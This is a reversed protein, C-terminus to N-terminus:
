TCVSGPPTSVYSGCEVVCGVLEPPLCGWWSAAHWPHRQSRGHRGCGRGRNRWGSRPISRGMRFMGSWGPVAHIPARRPRQPGWRNLTCEVRTRQRSDHPLVAPQAAGQPRGPQTRAGRIFASLRRVRSNTGPEPRRGGSPRNGLGYLLRAMVLAPLRLPPRLYIPMFDYAPPGLGVSDWDILVWGGEPHPLLNNTHADVIVPQPM